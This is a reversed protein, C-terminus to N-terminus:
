WNTSNPLDEENSPRVISESIKKHGFIIAPILALSSVVLLIKPLGPLESGWLGLTFALSNTSAVVTTLVQISFWASKGQFALVASVAALLAQTVLPSITTFIVYGDYSEFNWPIAYTATLGSMITIPLVWPKALQM